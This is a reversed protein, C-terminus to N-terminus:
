KFVFFGMMCKTSGKLASMDFEFWPAPQVNLKSLGFFELLAANKFLQINLNLEKKVCNQKELKLM